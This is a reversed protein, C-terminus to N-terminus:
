KMQACSRRRCVHSPVLLILNFLYLLPIQAMKTLDDDKPRVIEVSILEDKRLHENGGQLL